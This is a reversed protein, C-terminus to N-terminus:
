HIKILNLSYKQKFVQCNKQPLLFHKLAEKLGKICLKPSRVQQNM